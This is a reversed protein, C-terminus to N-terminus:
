KKLPATQGPSSEHGPAHEAGLIKEVEEALKSCLADYFAQQVDVNRKLADLKEGAQLVREFLGKIPRYCTHSDIQELKEAASQVDGEQILAVISEATSEATNGALALLPALAILLASFQCAPHRTM